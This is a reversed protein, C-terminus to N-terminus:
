KVERTSAAAALKSELTKAFPMDMFPDRLASKNVTFAGDALDSTDINVDNLTAHMAAAGEGSITYSVDNLPGGSERKTVEVNQGNIRTQAM